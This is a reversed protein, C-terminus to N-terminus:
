HLVNVQTTKMGEVFLYYTGNSLSSINLTTTAESIPFSMVKQGLSNCIFAESDMPADAVIILESNAPNPYVGLEGLAVEDIGAFGACNYPVPYNGEIPEINGNFTKGTFGFFDKHYKLARFVPNGTGLAFPQLSDGQNLIAGQVIPSYYEWVIDKNADIEFLRGYAGDCILTNGNYIAQAGSIYGSYFETGHSLVNTTDLYEWYPAQPEFATGATYDYKNTQDNWPLDLKVVNSWNDAGPRQWGNNFVLMKNPGELSDPIWQVDHAGFLQCDASIGHDYAVPNGWRYLIDGGMGSNGGTHGAAEQTTTSHDVIYFEGTHRSNMVIQDLEANYAITNAHIWDDLGPTSILGHYNIDMLEPHDVVVGYNNKTSDLDQVIHDWLWWEWVIQDTNPDVEIIHESWIVSDTLFNPDRGSDICDNYDHLDWALILVNGNPLIEVDHHARVMDNFYEYQWLVNGDWDVLQVYQGGGGGTIVTPPLPNERATKLLTGDELLEVTNGGLNTGTYWHHVLEGCNNILYVDPNLLPMFLTYGDSVGHYAKNLGLQVLTQSYLNSSITTVLTLLLIRLM